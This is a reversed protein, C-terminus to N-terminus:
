SAGDIRDLIAHALLRADTTSLVVAAHDGEFPGWADLQIRGDRWPDASIWCGNEVVCDLKLPWAVPPFPDAEIEWPPRTEDVKGAVPALAQQAYRRGAIVQQEAVVAALDEVQAALRNAWHVLRAEFPDNPNVISTDAVILSAHDAVEAATRTRPETM